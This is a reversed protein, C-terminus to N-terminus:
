ALEKKTFFLKHKIARYEQADNKLSKVTVGKSWLKDGKRQVSAANLDSWALPTKIMYAWQHKDNNLEVLLVDQHSLLTDELLECWAGWAMRHELPARKIGHANCGLTVIWTSYLPLEQIFEESMPLSAVNNPDCHIIVTSEPHVLGLELEKADMNMFHTDKSAPVNEKLKNFTNEKIEILGLHCEIGRGHAYKLHKQMIQPSAKGLSTDGDGACLDYMYIPKATVRPSLNCVVSVTQGVILDLIDHKFPTRESKGVNM